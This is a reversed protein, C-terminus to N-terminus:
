IRTGEFTYGHSSKSKGLLVYNIYNHGPIDLAEVAEQITRFEGIYETKVPNTYLSGKNDIKWAKIDRWKINAIPILDYNEIEEKTLARFTLGGATLQKGALQNGIANSKFGLKRSADKISEYVVGNNDIVPKRTGKGSWKRGVDSHKLNEKHTSWELNNVHNNTKDEDIHNVETQHGLRVLFAHAVLRHVYLSKWGGDKDRLTCRIYGTFSHLTLKKLTWKNYPEKTKNHKCVYSTIVIKGDRSVWVGDYEPIPRMFDTKLHKALIAQIEKHKQKVLPSM